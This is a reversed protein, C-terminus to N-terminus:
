RARLAAFRALGALTVAENRIVRVPMAEVVDRMRGKDLFGALFAGKQLAPLVKPAIGGGLYVGGRANMKLALNGAEAGYLRAFWDLTEVCLPDTESLARLTITAASDQGPDRFWDPVAMGADQLLFEFLHVLGPGSVIREWSVHGFRRQLLGHLRWDRDTTAAFEAHGGETSFPVHLRGDFFVGAEGLGTGAAIVARNGIADTAGVQLSVIEDPELTDIGWALAELDNLVHARQLRLQEALARGDVVWPLNTVRCVGRVVPGAVGFAAATPQFDPHVTLFERVIEELSGYAPSAFTGREVPQARGQSYAIIALRTNTGGIDGTLIHVRM